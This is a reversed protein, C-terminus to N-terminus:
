AVIRSNFQYDFGGGARALWGKGGQRQITPLVPIPPGGAPRSTSTDAAWLGYGGGGYVYFGTWSTVVAAPAVVAPPRAPLDAAWATQSAGLSAVLAWGVSAIRRM